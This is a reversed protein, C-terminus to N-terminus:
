DSPGPLLADPRPMPGLNFQESTTCYWGPGQLRGITRVSGPRLSRGDAEFYDDAAYLHRVRGFHVESEGITVTTEYTCELAIRAVELRPVQVTESAVTRLGLAEVESAGYPFKAASNQVLRAQEPTALHVVFERTRLINTATDKRVGPAKESAGFAVIPPDNGLVNFFSYPALNVSGSENLTAIWAVPRPVVLGTLLRYRVSSDLDDLAFKM